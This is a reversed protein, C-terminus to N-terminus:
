CAGLDKTFSANYTVEDSNVNLQAIIISVLRNWVETESSKKFSMNDRNINIIAFVLERMTLTRGAVSYFLWNYDPTKFNPIQGDIYMQLFSWGEELERFPVLDSVDTEPTIM